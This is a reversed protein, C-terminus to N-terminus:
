RGWWPGLGLGEWRFVEVYHLDVQIAHLAFMFFEEGEELVVVDVDGGDLFGFEGTFRGNLFGGVVRELSLVASSIYLSSAKGEEDM